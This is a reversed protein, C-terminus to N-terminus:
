LEGKDKLLKIHAALCEPSRGFRLAIEKRPVGQALLAKLKTNDEATWPHGGGRCHTRERKPAITSDKCIEQVEAKTCSHLQAVITLNGGSKQYDKRIQEVEAASFKPTDVKSVDAERVLTCVKDLLPDGYVAACFAHRHLLELVPRPLGLYYSVAQLDLAKPPPKPMDALEDLTCGLAQALKVTVALSPGGTGACYRYLMAKSVGSRDALQDACLDQRAMARRLGQAIIYTESM